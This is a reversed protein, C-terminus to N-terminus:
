HNGSDNKACAFAMAQFAGSDSHITIRFACPMRNLECTSSGTRPSSTKACGVGPSVWRKVRFAIQWELTRPEALVVNHHLHHLGRWVVDRGGEGRQTPGASRNSNNERQRIGSVLLACWQHDSAASPFGINQADPTLRWMVKSKTVVM